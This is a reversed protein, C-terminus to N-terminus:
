FRELLRELYEIEEETRDGTSLRRWLEELLERAREPDSFDPVDVTSGDGLARGLPRGLPDTQPGGRAAEGQGADGAEAEAEALASAGERLQEIARDMASQAANLGGRGLAEEAERMEDLANALADAAGADAADGRQLGQLLGRLDSALDRQEGSLDQQPAFDGGDEMADGAGAGLGSGFPSIAGPSLPSAFPQPAFPDNFREGGEQPAGGLERRRDYTKDALGRQRGILDAAEGAAGSGSQGDAQGGSGGGDQGGAQGPPGALQLNDLIDQLQDLAQQAANRAGSQALQNVSDLLDNLDSLEMQKGGPAAEPAERSAPSNALAQLYAAMADRLAETLRAIEADNAGNQLAERLAAQAAELAARADAVDKDELQLALPWLAEVTEDIDAPGSGDGVVRWLATRMLLYESPQDFFRDPGITLGSFALRSRRWRSPAIALTRRQEVVARALPSRFTRTPLTLKFEESAGEQGAADVVVLRAIVSLGAWPDALLDLELRRPGTVGRLAAAAVRRPTEAKVADPAPADRHREATPDLRMELAGEVVGYDDVVFGELLLVGNNAVQPEGLLQAAPQSDPTAKIPWRGALGGARLTLVADEEITAEGRMAGGRPTFGISANARGNSLQAKLARDAGTSAQAQIVIRSGAPADIQARRGALEDEPGLLYAPPRGTYDPPEIWMDVVGPQRLAPDTPTFAEALRPGWDDGAFTLGMAILAPAAFRLGLPDYRDFNPRPAAARAKQAEKRMKEEHIRWLANQEGTFPKDAHFLLADHRVGGDRELRKLAERRSAWIPGDAIRTVFRGIAATALLALGLAAWHVYAPTARWVGMLGLAAILFAPGIAVLAIPLAREIILACRAKLPKLGIGLGGLRGRARAAEDRRAGDRQAAAELDSLDM